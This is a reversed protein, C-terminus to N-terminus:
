ILTSHPSFSPQTLSASGVQAVLDGYAVRSASCAEGEGGKIAFLFSSVMLAANQSVYQVTSSQDEVM